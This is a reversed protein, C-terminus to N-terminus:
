RVPTASVIVNDSYHRQEPQWRGGCTILVLRPDGGRVFIEEWAVDTKPVRRVDDVTFRATTGDALEVTVEAGVALDRLKGFPGLGASAVSDVHAAIVTTGQEDAPAAGFRYWGAREALPPIEMQGDAQVGVPDVPIEIGLSPVSLRTPPTSQQASLGSLDANRVPVPILDSSPAPTPTAPSTAAVIPSPDATPTAEASCGGLVVLGALLAATTRPITRSM